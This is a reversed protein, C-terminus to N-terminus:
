AVYLTLYGDILTNMVSLQLVIAKSVDTRVGFPLTKFQEPDAIVRANQLNLPGPMASLVWRSHPVWLPKEYTQVYAPLEGLDAR